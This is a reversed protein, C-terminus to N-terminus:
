KREKWPDDGFPRELESGPDLFDPLPKNGRPGRPANGCAACVKVTEGGEVRSTWTHRGIWCALTKAM